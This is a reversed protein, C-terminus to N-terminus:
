LMKQKENGDYIQLPIHDKIVHTKGMGMIFKYLYTSKKYCIKRGMGMLVKHLYKIKSLIHKKGNGYQLHLPIHHKIVNKDIWQFILTTFTHSTKYCNKRGMGMMVKYLYISKSLTHKKRNGTTYTHSAKYCSKRGMEMM